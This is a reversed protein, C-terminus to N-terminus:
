GIDDTYLKSIPKVVVFPENSRETTLQSTINPLPVKAAPKPKTSRTGQRSQAMHSRITEVSIPCYKVANVFTLGPWSAYNGSKIAALWTSRVPFDECAHLYKVLVGVSPLNHANLAAPGMAMAAPGTAMAAPLKSHGRPKLSFRWLKAGTKERWGRLLVNGDQAFVTVAKREFLVGCNHDCLPGIGMLNHHFSKM